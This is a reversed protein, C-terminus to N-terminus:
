NGALSAEHPNTIKDALLTGRSPILKSTKHSNQPTNRKELASGCCYNRKLHCAKTSVYLGNELHYDAGGVLGM